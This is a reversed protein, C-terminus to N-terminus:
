NVVTEIDVDDDLMIAFVRGKDPTAIKGIKCACNNVMCESVEVLTVMGGGKIYQGFKELTVENGRVKVEFVKVHDGKLPNVKVRTPHTLAGVTNGSTM